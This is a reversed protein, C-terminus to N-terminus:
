LLFDRSNTNTKRNLVLGGLFAWACVLEETSWAGRHDGAPVAAEGPDGLACAAGQVGARLEACLPSRLQHRLGATHGSPFGMNPQTATDQVGRGPEGCARHAEPRLFLEFASAKPM